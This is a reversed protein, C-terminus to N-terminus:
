RNMINALYSAYRKALSAIDKKGLIGKDSLIVQSYTLPTIDFMPIAKDKDYFELTISHGKPCVKFSEALVYVRKGDLSALKTLTSSGLKNVISGDEYIVDSGIVIFDVQKIMSEAALDPILYSRIHSSNLEEVLIEGEGGPRSECVFVSSIRDSNDKITKSVSSSNSITLVSVKERRGLVKSFEYAIKSKADVVKNQLREAEDLLSSSGSMYSSVAESIVNTIAVFTPRLSVLEKALLLAANRDDTYQKAFVKLAELGKLALSTSGSIRDNKIDELIKRVRSPYSM